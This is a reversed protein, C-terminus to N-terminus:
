RSKKDNEMPTTTLTSHINVAKINSYTENERDMLHCSTTSTTEQQDTLTIKSHTINKNIGLRADVTHGAIYREKGYFEVLYKGRHVPQSYTHIELSPPNLLYNYDMILPGLFWKRHIEYFSDIM